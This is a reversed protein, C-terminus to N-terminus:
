RPPRHRFWTRATIRNPPKSGDYYNVDGCEGEVEGLLRDGDIAMIKITNQETGLHDVYYFNTHWGHKLEPAASNPIRFEDGPNLKARKLQSSIVALEWRPEARLPATDAVTTTARGCNLYLYLSSSDTGADIVNWEADIIPFTERGSFRELILEDPMAKSEQTGTADTQPPLQNGSQWFHAALCVLITICLAAAIGSRYNM